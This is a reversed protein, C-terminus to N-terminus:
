ADIAPHYTLAVTDSEVRETGALHWQRARPGPRFFPEGDVFVPIVTITLEDVLGADVLTQGFRGHGYVILDPGPEAKMATVTEVVAGSEVTTNNWEAHHLTSSFVVKRMANLYDAYEGGGSPWLSSFVEYTRRGMLMASCHRLTALSRAASIPGFHAGTWEHPAGAVGNLSVLTSQVLRM